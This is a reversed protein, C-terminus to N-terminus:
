ALTPSQREWLLSDAAFSLELRNGDFRYTRTLRTGIWDPILAVTVDHHIFREDASYRAAYANFRLAAEFLAARASQEEAPAHADIGLWYRRCAAIREAGIALPQRDPNMFASCMTGDATYVLTGRPHPGFPTGVSGDARRTTWSLLQWSGVFAASPPTL